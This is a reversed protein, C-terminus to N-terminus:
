LQVLILLLCLFFRASSDSIPLMVFLSKRVDKHSIFQRRHHIKDGCHSIQNGKSERYMINAKVSLSSIQFGYVSISLKELPNFSIFKRMVHSELSIIMLHVLVNTQPSNDRCIEILLLRLVLAILCDSIPCSISHFIQFVLFQSLFFQSFMEKFKM